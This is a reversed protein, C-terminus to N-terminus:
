AEQQTYAAPAPPSPPAQGQLAAVIRQVHIHCNELFVHYSQQTGAVATGAIYVGAASTEMTQENYRPLQGPGTLEVGAMRALSMDALYGIQVLVFDAPVEFSRVDELRELTVHTPSIALPRTRYHCTIQGAAILGTLEPLLWYKISKPGFAAGRYSVTVHAGARHCRLAAEAASNRGGIVLLRRQFYRHPDEFCPSVHPLEEGPIELKRPRATGGTALVLRRALIRRTGGAPQTLLEFGAPERRLRVVPEYTRVQLEFQGVLMRLYALYEGKTCKQQGPTQIPVGALAIRDSSSFFQMQPPFGSITQGIQGKELHLYDIGARKCAIALELGIPGAGIIAVDTSITPVSVPAGELSSKLAAAASPGTTPPEHDLIAPDADERQRAQDWQVKVHAKWLVPGSM